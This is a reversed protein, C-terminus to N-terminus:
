PLITYLPCCQYLRLRTTRRKKMALALFHPTQWIFMILFLVFAIIDLGPDVAGWGILPPVAGSVCGIITNLTYRRKSWMTYLFVYVFWGAFAILAAMETTFLLLVLGLVSASIGLWLVYNLSISGTVTSRTKTRSMVPDIDADYWNNLMYGGAIVFASGAMTLVLVPWNAMFSVNTIYSALWFGVIATILNSIVIGTKTLAKFESLFAAPNQQWMVPKKDSLSVTKDNNM